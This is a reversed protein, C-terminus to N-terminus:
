LDVDDKSRTVRMNNKDRGYSSFLNGNAVSYRSRHGKERLEVSRESSVIQLESYDNKGSIVNHGAVKQEQSCNVCYDVKGKFFNVGGEPIPNNCGLCLIM